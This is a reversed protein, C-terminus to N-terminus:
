NYNQEVWLILMSFFFLGIFALEIMLLMYTIRRASPKMPIWIKRTYWKWGPIWSLRKWRQFYAFLGEGWAKLSKDVEDQRSEREAETTGDYDDIITLKSGFETPEIELATQKKIGDEYRIVWRADSEREVCFRSSMEQQNSLNSYDTEYCNDATKKWKTKYVYYPNVRIIAEMDDVLAALAEPSQKAPITVWAADQSDTPAQEATTQNEQANSM